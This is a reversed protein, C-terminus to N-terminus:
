NKCFAFDGMVYVSQNSPSSSTFIVNRKYANFEIVSNMITFKNMVLGNHGMIEPTRRVVVVDSVNGSPVPIGGLTKGLGPCQQTKNITPSDGPQAM